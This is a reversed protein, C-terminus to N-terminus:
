RADEPLGQPRDLLHRLHVETPSQVPLFTAERSRRSTASAMAYGRGGVIKQELETARGALLAADLRQGVLDRPGPSSQERLAGALRAREDEAAALADGLVSLAVDGAAQRAADLAAGALGLCMATQLQLFEPRIRDLFAPVDADLVADVPADELLVVGSDTSNLAVLGTLEKIRVGPAGVRLRVVLRDGDATRVPTVVHAGDRLNSCWPLTGDVRLRDRTGRAVLPVEGLGAEEKFAPAMGSALVTTGESAGDPRPSGAADHFAIGSRHGWLCFASAVCRRAVAHVIELQVPLDADLGGLPALDRLAEWPSASGQDVARAADAVRALVAESGPPLEALGLSDRTDAPDTTTTM